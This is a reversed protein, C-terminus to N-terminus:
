RLAQIAQSRTLTEVKTHLQAVDDELARIRKDDRGELVAETVGLGAAVVAIAVGAWLMGPVVAGAVIVSLSFAGLVYAGLRLLRV